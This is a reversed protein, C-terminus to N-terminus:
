SNLEKILNLVSKLVEVNINVIGNIQAELLLVIMKMKVNWKEDTEVISTTQWWNRCISNSTSIQVWIRANTEITGIGYQFINMHLKNQLTYRFVFHIHKCRKHRRKKWEWLSSRQKPQRCRKWLRYTSTRQRIGLNM